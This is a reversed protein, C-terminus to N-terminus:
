IDNNGGFTNGQAAGLTTTNSKPSLGQSISKGLEINPGFCLHGQSRMRKSGLL